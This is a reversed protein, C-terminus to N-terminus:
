AATRESRCRRSCSSVRTPRGDRRSDASRRRDRRRCSRGSAALTRHRRISGAPRGRVPDGRYGDATSSPSGALCPAVRRCGTGNRRTTRPAASRPGPGPRPSSARCRRETPSARSCAPPRRRCPATPSRHSRGGTSRAPSHGRLSGSGAFPPCCRCSGVFVRGPLSDHQDAAGVDGALNGRRQGLEAARARHHHELVHREAAVEALLGPPEELASELLVANGNM